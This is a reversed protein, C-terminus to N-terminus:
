SLAQEKGGGFVGCVQLQQDLIVLDALAGPEIVGLNSLKMLQAPTYSAMKLSEALSIEAEQVCNRVASAMTLASGSLTGTETVFKNIGAFFKYPGDTSATVSDTILYLRDRMIKHAIALSAFSCHIGDAIISANASHHNMAAGTLGPERSGLQSMANYLHTACAIGAEFGTMAEEYTANSHGASCLIDAELLRSVLEENFYEPAITMMKIVGRGYNIIQEFAVSDPSIVFEALHAGRKEANIFPGELHLGLLGPLKQALGEKVTDIAKLITAMSSTSLTVLYRTTGGGLNHAHIAELTQLDQTNNFLKGRAGYLQLDIFAPAVIMLAANYSKSAQDFPLATECKRDPDAAHMEKLQSLDADQFSIIKDGDILLVQNHLLEYGTFLTGAYISFKM